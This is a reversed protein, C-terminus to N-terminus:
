ENNMLRQENQVTTDHHSLDTPRNSKRINRKSPNTSRCDRCRRATSSVYKEFAQKCEPCIVVEVPTGRNWRSRQGGPLQKVILGEPTTIVQNKPYRCEICLFKYDKSYRKSHGKPATRIANCRPCTITIFSPATNEPAPNLDRQTQKHEKKEQVRCARCVSKYTDEFAAKDTTGCRRCKYQKVKYISRPIDVKEEGDIGESTEEKIQTCNLCEVYHPQTITYHFPNYMNGYTRAREIRATCDERLMNCSYRECFIRTKETYGEVYGVVPLHKFSERTKTTTSIAAGPIFM